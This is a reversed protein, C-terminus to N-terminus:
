RVIQLVEALLMLIEGVDGVEEDVGGGVSLHDLDEFPTTETHPPVALQDPPDIRVHRQPTSM